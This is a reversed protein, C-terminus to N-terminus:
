SGPARRVQNGFAVIDNNLPFAAYDFRMPFVSCDFSARVV